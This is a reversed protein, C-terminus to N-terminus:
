LGQAWPCVRCQYPNLAWISSDVAGVEHFHIDEPSCGHIKGEEQALREFIRIGKEKVYKSLGSQEIIKKIHSLGRHEHAEHEVNVKFGTASLNNKSEKKSELSYGSIGLTEIAKELANFPLGADLLAGLFMDGSVGSFCDLYAIKM